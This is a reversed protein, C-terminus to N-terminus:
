PMARNHLTTLWSPLIANSVRDVLFVAAQLLPDGTNFLQLCLLSFLLLLLLLVCSCVNDTWRGTHCLAPAASLLADGCHLAARGQPLLPNYVSDMHWTDILLCSQLQM